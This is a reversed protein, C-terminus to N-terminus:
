KAEVSAPGDHNKMDLARDTKNIDMEDLKPIISKRQNNIDGSLHAVGLHLSRYVAM